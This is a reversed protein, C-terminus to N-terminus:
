VNVKLYFLFELLFLMIIKILFISHYKQLPIKKSLIINVLFKFFHIIFM